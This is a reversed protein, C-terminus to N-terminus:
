LASQPMTATLALDSSTVAGGSLIKSSVSLLIRPLPYLITSALLMSGWSFSWSIITNLLDRRPCSPTHLRM